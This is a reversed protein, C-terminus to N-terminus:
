LIPAKGQRLRARNHSRINRTLSAVMDFEPFREQLKYYHISRLPNQGCRLMRIYDTTTDLVLAIRTLCYIKCLEHFDM